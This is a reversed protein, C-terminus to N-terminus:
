ESLNSGEVQQLVESTHPPITGSNSVFSPEGFYKQQQQVEPSQVSDQFKFVGTICELSNKLM